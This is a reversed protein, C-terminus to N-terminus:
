ASVIDVDRWEGEGRRVWGDGEGRGEVVRGGEGGKEVM